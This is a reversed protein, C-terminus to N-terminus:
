KKNVTIVNDRHHRDTEVEIRIKRSITSSLEETYEQFARFERDFIM